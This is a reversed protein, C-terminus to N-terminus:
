EHDLASVNVVLDLIVSDMPSLIDLFGGHLVRFLFIHASGWFTLFLLIVLFLLAHQSLSSFTFVTTVKKYTYTVVNFLRNTHPVGWDYNSLLSFIVQFHIESKQTPSSTLYLILVFLTNQFVM